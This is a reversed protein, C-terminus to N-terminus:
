PCSEVFERVEVMVIKELACSMDDECVRFKLDFSCKECLCTGTLGTFNTRYQDCAKQTFISSVYALFKELGDLIM